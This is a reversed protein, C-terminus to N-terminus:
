WAGTDIEGLTNVAHLVMTGAMMGSGLPQIEAFDASDASKLGVVGVLFLSETDFVSGPITQILNDPDKPETPDIESEWAPKGSDSLLDIVLLFANDFGQGRMDVSIAVGPTHDEPIAVSAPNPTRMAIRRRVGAYDAIVEVEDLPRYDLGDAGDASYAGGGDEALGVSSLSESVLTVAAGLGPNGGTAIDVDYIYANITSGASLDTGGLDIGDDPDPEELGVYVVQMLVPQTLDDVVDKIDEFLQCGTTWAVIPLLYLFRAM